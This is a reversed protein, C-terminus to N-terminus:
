RDCNVLRENERIQGLGEFSHAAKIEKQLRMTVKHQPSLSLHATSSSVSNPELDHRERYTQCGVVPLWDALYDFRSRCSKIKHAFQVYSKTQAYVLACHIYM